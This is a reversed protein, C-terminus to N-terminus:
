NNKKIKELTRTIFRPTLTKIPNVTTKLDKPQGKIKFSVGFVGEGTKKGILIDGLIPIKAIAKNITTAPVLTGRLSVMKENEIYGSMLISIAPGIAYIEDITMINEKNSFKMDFEDFRIGEGTLIDAIGQLSSLTLIKTLAPMEILKFNYIKLNANTKNNMKVSHFDLSGEKFGKIFKYKKVLPEPFDLYITTIKKNQDNSKVKYSFDRDNVLASIELKSIENNSFKIEGKLNKFFSLNDIYAKNINLSIKSNFNDFILTKNQSKLLDDILKSSDFVKGLVKYNKKNREITIQNNKKNLNIFKLKANDLYQFKYDKTLNLNKVKFHNKDNNFIIKEFVINEDKQYKGIIEINAPDNKKKEYSLSKVFLESKDLDASINFNYKNKNKVIQYSIKDELNELSYNNKGNINFKDKEYTVNIINNNLILSNKYNKIYKNILKSKLNLKLKELNINSSIKLDKIKNKDLKFNFENETKIQFIQDEIFNLKDKFIDKILNSKIASTENRLDGKFIFNNKYNDIEISNSNFKINKYIFKSNNLYYKKEKLATEFEFDINEFTNNFLKIKVDSASGRFTSDKKINGKKDFNISAAIWFSGEKIFSNLIILQPKEHKAVISILDKIKNNKTLILLNDLTFSGQFYSFLNIYTSIWAIKIKNDGSKIIPDDTKIQIEPNFLDEIRLYIKVKKIDLELDKDYKKVQEKILSNAKNTEIGFKSLYIITIFIIFALSIIFILFKKLM